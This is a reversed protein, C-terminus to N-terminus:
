RITVVVALELVEVALEVIGSRISTSRTVKTTTIVTTNSYCSMCQSM